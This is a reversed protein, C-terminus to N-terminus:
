SGPSAESSIAEARRKTRRELIRAKNELTIARVEAWFAEQQKVSRPCAATGQGAVSEVTRMLALGLPVQTFFAEVAAKQGGALERHAEDGYFSQNARASKDFALAGERGEVFGLLRHDGTSNRRYAPNEDLEVMRDFNNVRITALGRALDDKSHAAILASAVASRAEGLCGGLKDAQTTRALRRVIRNPIYDADASDDFLGREIAMAKFGAIEHYGRPDLVPPGSIGGCSDFIAFSKELPPTLNVALASALEAVSMGGTGAADNALERWREAVQRELRVAEYAEAHAEREAKWRAIEAPDTMDEPPDYEVKVELPVVWTCASAEGAVIM